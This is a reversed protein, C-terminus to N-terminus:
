SAPAAEWQIVDVFRLHDLDAFPELRVEQELRGPGDLADTIRGVPIGAPLASGEEMGSTVARDGSSVSVGPEVFGVSLERGPGEGSAVSLEDPGLIRIGIASSPDTVLRVVSRSGSASVVRGVLGAGTVVPMGEGIGDDTGKDLEITQEFNGIPAGVVRATVHPVDDLVPLRQLRLLERLEARADENRVADGQLQELEARLEANEDELSGYGTVGQLADGVPSFVTGGASRVPALVDAAGNRISGLVGGGGGRFDLTIVTISTLVLFLLTFRNRGSRRSLAM